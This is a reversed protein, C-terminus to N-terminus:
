GLKENIGNLVSELMSIIDVVTSDEGVMIDAIESKEPNKINEEL